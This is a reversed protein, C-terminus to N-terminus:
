FLSQMMSNRWLQRLASFGNFALDNLIPNPPQDDFIADEELVFLTSRLDEIRQESTGTGSVGPSPHRRHPLWLDGMSTSALGGKPAGDLLGVTPKSTGGGM